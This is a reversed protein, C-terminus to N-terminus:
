GSREADGLWYALFPDAIRFAHGDHAVLGRQELTALAKRAAAPNAYGTARVFSASRPHLLPAERLVALLRRQGPALEGVREAYHAAAATAVHRVAEDASQGTIDGGAHDFAARALRQVQLPVGGGLQVLRTAADAGMSKGGAKARARLHRSMIGSPIVGLRLHPAQGAVSGALDVLPDEYGHNTVGVMIMSVGPRHAVDTLMDLSRSATDLLSQAEDLILVVPRDAAGSGIRDAVKDHDFARLVDTYHVRHGSAALRDAARLALSTSGYGRPASLLTTGGGRQIIRSLIELEATRGAFHAGSVPGGCRFPNSSVPPAYGNIGNPIM